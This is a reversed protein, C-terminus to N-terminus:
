AVRTEGGSCMSGGSRYVSSGVEGGGPGAKPVPGRSGSSREFDVESAEKM